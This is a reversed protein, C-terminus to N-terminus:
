LSISNLDILFDNQGSLHGLRTNRQGGGKSEHVKEGLCENGAGNSNDNVLYQCMLLLKQPSESSICSCLSYGLNPIFAIMHLYTVVKPLEATLGM